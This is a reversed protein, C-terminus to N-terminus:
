KRQRTLGIVQVYACVYGIYGQDRQRKMEIVHVYVCVCTHLGSRKVNDTRYCTCISTCLRHLWLKDNGIIHVYVCIYGIYSDDRQRTMGIVHAYVCVCTHLGSRKVNDTRYCTCISTCLRHLWLKDNGIIHVYVCIYGIYSDDRQRTMGIVHAYM